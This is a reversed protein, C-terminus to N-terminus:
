RLLTPLMFKKLFRRKENKDLDDRLLLLVHIHRLWEVMEDVTLDLTLSYHHFLAETPCGIPWHEWNM